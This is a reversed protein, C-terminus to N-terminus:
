PYGSIRVHDLYQYQDRPVPNLGGGYTPNWALSQWTRSGGMQWNVNAYQHTKVGDIWMHLEGNATSNNTNAKLLMEYVM